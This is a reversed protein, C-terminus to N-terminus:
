KINARDLREQLHKLRAEARKTQCVSLLTFLFLLVVAAGYAAFVYVRFDNEPEGAASVYAGPAAQLISILM